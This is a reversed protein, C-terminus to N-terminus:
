YLLLLLINDYAFVAYPNTTLYRYIPVYVCTGVGIRGTMTRMTTCKLAQTYRRKWKRERVRCVCVCQAYSNLIKTSNHLRMKVSGFEATDDMGTYVVYIASVILPTSVPPYGGLVMFVKNKWKWFKSIDNWQITCM